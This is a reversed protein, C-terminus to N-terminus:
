ENYIFIDEIQVKFFKSIKFALILSPDYKEKEIAIITQRTVGLKKALEEQTIDQMARLIKLKNKMTDSDINGATTSVPHM